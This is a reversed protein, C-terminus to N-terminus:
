SRTLGRESHRRAGSTPGRIPTQGRVIDRTLSPAAPPSPTAPWRRRSTAPPSATASPDDVALELANRVVALTRRMDGARGEAVSEAYSSVVLEFGDPEFVAAVDARVANDDIRRQLVRTLALPLDPPAPLDVEATFTQRVRQYGGLRTYELQAAVVLVADLRGIARATQDFFADAVAPSGGWHDTDDVILVPCRGARWFADLLRQLGSIM